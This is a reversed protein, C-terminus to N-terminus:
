DRPSRRNWRAIFDSRRGRAVPLETGDDLIVTLSDKMVEVHAIAEWAIWHSRHICYGFGDPIQSLFDRIRARIFHTEGGFMSVSIYHEQSMVWRIGKGPLLRGAIAITRLPAAPAPAVPESFGPTALAPKLEAIKPLPPEVPHRYPKVDPLVLIGFLAEMATFVALHFGWLLMTQLVPLSNRDFITVSWQGVFTAVGSSLLLLWITHFRGIGLRGGFRALLAFACLYILFVMAGIVTIISIAQWRDLPTHQYPRTVAFFAICFIMFLQFRQNRILGAAFGRDLPVSAGNCFVLTTEPKDM